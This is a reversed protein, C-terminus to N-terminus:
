AAAGTQPMPMDQQGVQSISDDETSDMREERVERIQQRNSPDNEQKYSISTVMNRDEFWFNILQYGYEEGSTYGFMNVEGALLYREHVM